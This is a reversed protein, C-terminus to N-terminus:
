LDFELVTINARLDHAFSSFTGPEMFLVIDLKGSYVGFSKNLGNIRLRRLVNQLDTIQPSFPNFMVFNGFPPIIIPDNATENEGLIGPTVGTNDGFVCLISSDVFDGNSNVAKAVWELNVDLIMGSKTSLSTATPTSTIANFYREIKVIGM